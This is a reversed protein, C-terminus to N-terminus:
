MLRLFRFLDCRRDSCTLKEQLSCEEDRCCYIECYDQLEQIDGITIDRGKFITGTDEELRKMARSLTEPQMCLRSAVLLKNYPLKVKTEYGQDMSLKLIFAAVRQASTLRTFHDYMLGTQGFHYSLAALIKIAVKPNTNIRERIASAPIILCKAKSGAVQASYFYNGEELATEEGFSDGRTLIAQVTESGDRDTQFLKVWGDMIVYMFDAPDGRQFLFNKKPYEVLRAMSLFWEIDAKELDSFFPTSQLLTTNNITAKMM